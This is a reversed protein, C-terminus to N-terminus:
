RAIIEATHSAIIVYERHRRANRVANDVMIPCRRRTFEVFIGGIRTFRPIKRVM